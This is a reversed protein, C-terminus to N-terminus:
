IKEGWGFENERKEGFDNRWRFEGDGKATSVTGIKRACHEHLGKEANSYTSSV